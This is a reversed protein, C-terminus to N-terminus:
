SKSDKSQAWILRVGLSEVYQCVELREREVRAQGDEIEEASGRGREVFDAADFAENILRLIRRLQGKATRPKTM